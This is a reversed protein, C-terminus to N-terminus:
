RQELLDFRDEVTAPLVACRALAGLEARVRPWRRRMLAILMQNRAELAMRREHPMRQLSPHHDAVVGPHHCLRWGRAALDAALLAEEAGFGLLASFGGADHFAGGAARSRM